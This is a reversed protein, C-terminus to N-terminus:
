FRYTLAVQVIPYFRLVDADEEIRAEEERLEAQLTPDNSLTGGVSVLSVDPEQGIAVGAMARWGWGPGQFTNDWGLGAVPAFDGFDAEGELRGVQAPTFTQDGVTVPGTPQADLGLAREGFLAGGTVFFSGGGPHYQAFAGFVDSDVEGTYNIDDVDQDHDFNLTEYAGRVVFRDTVQFQAEAHLGTTGVGAGVALRDQALAAGPILLAASAATFVLIRM